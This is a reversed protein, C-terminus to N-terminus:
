SKSLGLFAALAQEIPKEYKSEISGIKDGLGAKRVTTIKDVMVYSPNQLRNEASPTILVRHASDSAISTMPIIVVSDLADFGTAQIIVSPRPKSSYTGGITTYIELRKMM